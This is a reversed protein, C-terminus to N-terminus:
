SSAAVPLYQQNGSERSARREREAPGDPNIPKLGGLLKHDLTAVILQASFTPGKCEMLVPKGGWHFTIAVRLEDGSVAQAAFQLLAQTRSYTAFYM